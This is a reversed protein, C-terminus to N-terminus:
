LRLAVLPWGLGYSELRITVGAAEPSVPARTASSIADLLPMHTTLIRSKRVEFNANALTANKQVHCAYRSVANANRMQKRFGMPADPSRLSVM